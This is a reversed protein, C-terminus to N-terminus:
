DSITENGVLLRAATAPHAAILRRVVPVVPHQAAAVCFIIEYRPYDLELGSRLTEEIHNEIGCVPRVLSVGPLPAPAPRVPAPRRCRLVAIITSAVHVATTIICFSEAIWIPIMM